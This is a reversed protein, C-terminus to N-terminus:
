RKKVEKIETALVKIDDRIEKLIKGVMRAERWKLFLLILYLGFMGGVLWQVSEIFMRIKDVLAALIPISALAVTENIEDM